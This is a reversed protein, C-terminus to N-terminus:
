DPGGTAPTQRTGFGGPGEWNSDDFDPRTWAANPAATTYRWDQPEVQSTAILPTIVPPPEYLRRTVNAIKEPDMKIIARDYTMMGNVEIEVDTTGVIWKSKDLRRSGDTPSPVRTLRKCADSKKGLADDTARRGAEM